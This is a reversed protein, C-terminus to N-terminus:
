MSTCLYASSGSNTAWSPTSFVTLNTEKMLLDSMGELPTDSKNKKLIKLYEPYNRWEVTLITGRSSKLIKETIVLMDLLKTLTCDIKKM